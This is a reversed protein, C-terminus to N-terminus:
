LVRRPSDASSSNTRHAHALSSADAGRAEGFNAEGTQAGPKPNRIEKRNSRRTVEEASAASLAASLVRLTEPDIARIRAHQSFRDASHIGRQERQRCGKGM